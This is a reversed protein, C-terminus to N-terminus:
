QAPHPVLDVRDAPGDSARDGLARVDVRISAVGKGILFRRVAIARSLSSRRARVPDDDGSRAYAVVQLRTSPSRALAQALDTLKDRAARSLKASGPAFLIRSGQLTRASAAPRPASTTASTQALRPALDSPRGEMAPSGPARPPKPRALLEQTLAPTPLAPAPPSIADRLRSPRTPAVPGQSGSDVPALLAKTLPSMVPASVQAVPVAALPPARGAASPEGAASEALLAGTLATTAPPDVPVSAPLVPAPRWAPDTTSPAIPFPSPFLERTLASPTPPAPSIRAIRRTPKRKPIPLAKAATSEPSLARAPAAPRRNGPFDLRPPLLSEIMEELAPKVPTGTRASSTQASAPGGAAVLCIATVLGPLFTRWPKRKTQGIRAACDRM